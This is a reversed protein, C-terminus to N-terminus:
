KSQTLVQHLKNIATFVTDRLMEDDECTVQLNTLDIEIVKGNVTVKLNDGKTLRDKPIANDGFM